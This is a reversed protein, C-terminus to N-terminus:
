KGTCRKGTCRKGTIQEGAFREGAGLNQSGTSAAGTGSRGTERRRIGNKGIRRRRIESRGTRSRGTRSQRTRSARSRGGKGQKGADGRCNGARGVKRRELPEGESDIGKQLQLREVPGIVAHEFSEGRATDPPQDDGHRGLVAFADTGRGQKRGIHQPQVGILAHRDGGIGPRQRRFEVATDLTDDLRALVGREEGRRGDLLTGLRGAIDARGVLDLDDAAPAAQKRHAAFTRERAVADITKDEVVEVLVGEFGIRREDAGVAPLPIRRHDAGAHVVSRTLQDDEGAPVFLVQDARESGAFRDRLQPLPRLEVAQGGVRPQVQVEFREFGRGRGSDVRAHRALRQPLLLLARGQEFGLPPEIRQLEFAHILPM